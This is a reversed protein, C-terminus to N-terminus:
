MCRWVAAAVDALVLERPRDGDVYIATPSTGSAAAAPTGSGRSHLAVVLDAGDGRSGEPCIAVMGRARAHRARFGTSRRPVVVDFKRGFLHALARCLDAREARDRGELVVLLGGRPSSRAPLVPLDCRRALQRLGSRLEVAWGRLVAGLM